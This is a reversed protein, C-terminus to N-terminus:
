SVIKLKVFMVFCLYVFNPINSLRGTSRSLKSDAQLRGGKESRLQIGKEKLPRETETPVENVAELGTTPPRREKSKEKQGKSKTRGPKKEKEQPKQQPPPQTPKSVYSVTTTSPKASTTPKPIHYLKIEGDTEGLSNRSICKYSGYDSTTVSKITLKMHVKYANDILVPEYKGDLCLVLCDTPSSSNPARQPPVAFFMFPIKSPNFRFYGGRRETKVRNLTEKEKEDELEDASLKEKAENGKLQIRTSQGSLSHNVFFRGGALYWLPLRDPPLPAHPFAAPGTSQRKEQVICSLELNKLGQAITEGNRTWYNISKPYAESHCQLTMSQGEQAGVLQNQIWIMPPFHVILMIRKSVSPPVKNSAICLYAGMHLRNVRTITLVSGEITVAEEGNGLVIPEGQERKWVITPPPFGTAVCQLTVNNGERVVMDTSTPYDLIDPPVVVELYGVQSKMPDTNIQCMYWGRDSEKVERIHLVWTKKDSNAVAIRHNKTIVHVAITLITQTDVRLWAVKLHM